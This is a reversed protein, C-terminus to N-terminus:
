RGPGNTYRAISGLFGLVAERSGRSWLDNHGGGEIRVFRKPEAARQFLREGHGIPVTADLTGHVILVPARVKGIRERSLYSDALLSGVPLFPFLEAARDAIATFPASLMLGAVPREAALATAVGSGLSEGFLVIPADPARARAADYAAKADAILGAESPAGPSGAYGRYSLAMVGYGAAALDRFVPAWYSLNGGNGHMHIVVPRGAEPPMWWLRVPVGDEARAALVDAVLGVERPSVATTDPFYLLRRQMGWMAVCLVIYGVIVIVAVIGLWKMAGLSRAPQKRRM